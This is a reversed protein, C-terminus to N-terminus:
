KRKQLLSREIVRQFRASRMEEDVRKGIAEPDIGPVSRARNLV